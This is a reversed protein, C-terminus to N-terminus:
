FQLDVTQTPRDITTMLAKIIHLSSSKRTETKATSKAAVVLADVDTQVRRNRVPPKMEEIVTQIMVNMTEQEDTQQKVSRTENVDTQMCRNEMVPKEVIQLSKTTFRLYIKGQIYNIVYANVDFNSCLQDITFCIYFITRSIIQFYFVQNKLEDMDNKQAELFDKLEKLNDKYDAREGDMDKM